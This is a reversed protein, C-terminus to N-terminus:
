NEIVIVDGVKIIGEEEGQQEWCVNQGVYIKRDKRRFTALSRNPEITKEATEQNINPINCRACQKVGRFTHTGITFYNWNDEEFAQGGEFLINARFRNAPIPEGAQKSIETLAPDGLLLIPYGDAFSVIEGEKRYDEDITRHIHAPMYVLQCATDLKDSFWQNIAAPMVSSICTDRWVTVAQEKLFVDPTLPFVLVDSVQRSDWVFLQDNEIKTKLLAMTAIRRQTLFMGKPTTLMFRRDHKLGRKTLIAEQIEIGGLSKIPYIHLSSVKM